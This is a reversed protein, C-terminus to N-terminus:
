KGMLSASFKESDDDGFLLQKDLESWFIDIRRRDLGLALSPRREQTQTDNLM